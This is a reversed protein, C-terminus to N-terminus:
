ACSAVKPAIRVIPDSLSLARVYGPLRLSPSLSAVPYLRQIKSGTAVAGPETSVAIAKIQRTYTDKVNPSDGADPTQSQARLVQSRARLSQSRVRLGQSQARLVQSRVRL